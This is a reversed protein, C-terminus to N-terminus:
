IDASVAENTSDASISDAHFRNILLQDAASFELITPEPSHLSPMQSHPLGQRNQAQHHQQADHIQKQRQAQEPTDQSNQGRPLYMNKIDNEVDDKHILCQRKAPINPEIQALARCQRNM